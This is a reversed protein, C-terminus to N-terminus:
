RLYTAENLCSTFEKLEASAREMDNLNKSVINVFASGVIAGDAGAKLVNQVHSPESIGFGVAVPVSNSSGNHAVECMRRIYETSIKSSKAGSKRVGTVGLLSVLYLFGRTENLIERLRVESTTPSALLITALKNKRESRVYRAFESSGIRPLDPVVIGNVGSLRAKALFRDLGFRFISNYYTLLVIPVSNKGSSQSGTKIKAVIKLCDAPTTGAHLSRGSAAQITPGDAIPDSFPIGLELIDVGGDLLAKCLAPTHEPSPDGATLYGILAGRGEARARSFAERVNEEGSFSGHSAM